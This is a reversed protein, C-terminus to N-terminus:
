KGGRLNTRGIIAPREEEPLKLYVLEYVKGEVWDDVFNDYYKSGPNGSQGGPYIGWAKIEPGLAVVMRWSPGFSKSTANIARSIGDTELNNRSLAPIRALHVIDTGRIKGWAWSNGLPGFEEILKKSSEKFAMHIIDGLTEREDTTKNDFYQNDPKNLIFEVTVEADPRQLNFLDNEFEDKWIGEYLEKWFYEFITPAILEARYEFNWEKLEGFNKKEELTLEKDELHELLYHLVKRAHLNVVDKQMKIMDQPTIDKMGSLLENVRAGREFSVYDWGLYYPYLSDTPKQNASSVFGREPNKVHPCHERPIWGKWETEYLSGDLIYRGQGKRRMPFKGNHWLAIDGNVDAFVFNQAPCDFYHLAELYDEYNKARNLKYLATLETSPDHGSWRMAADKPVSSNYPEEGEYYVVPGHHTYCVEDVVTKGGRVKIKEVRFATKHWEGEYLYEKRSSDKFKVSYWDLVDSGANTFGWAIRNNFGIIVTPDGLLSVGYVNVEPSVLQIEYWLSPLNFGLHPDNGLIPYGSKTMKGSVAWNNSGIGSKSEESFSSYSDSLGSLPVFKKEPIQPLQARFNWSTGSPIIPELFPSSYPFLLDMVKEGLAQRLLTMPYDPSYGTLDWAMYKTLLASKLITWPEPSYNLIKYEVPLKKKNLSKIYANVGDTYAKVVAKSEPSGTLGKVVNEAAFIMGIRRQYRDYEITMKGLIESLRGASALTQFEMQWLRDRATIYGQAFYLDHDNSAFIHPVRRSDWVVQVTDHLEPLIIEGVIKDSKDSNQWFGSFPNFLKGVPPIMGHSFHLAWFILVAILMWIFAKLLRM